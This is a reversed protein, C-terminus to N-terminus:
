APRDGALGGADFATLYVIRRGAYLNTLLNALGPSTTPRCPWWRRM